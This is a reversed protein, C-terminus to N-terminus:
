RRRGTPELLPWVDEPMPAGPAELFTLLCRLDGCCSEVADKAKAAGDLTADDLIEAAEVGAAQPDGRVKRCRQWTRLLEAHGGSVACAQHGARRATAAFRCWSSLQQAKVWSSGQQRKVADGAERVRCDEFCRRSWWSLLEERTEAARVLSGRPGKTAMSAAEWLVEEACRWDFRCQRFAAEVVAEQERSPAKYSLANAHHLWEVAGPAPGGTVMVESNIMPASYVVAGTKADKRWSSKPTSIEPITRLQFPIPLRVPYSSDM